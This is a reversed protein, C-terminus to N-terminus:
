DSSFFIAILHKVDFKQVVKLVLQPSYFCQVSLYPIGSGIRNKLASDSETFLYSIGTSLNM